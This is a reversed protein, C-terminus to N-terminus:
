RQNILADPFQDPLRDTWIQKWDGNGVVTALLRARLRDAPDHFRGALRDDLSVVSPNEVLEETIGDAGNAPRELGSRASM